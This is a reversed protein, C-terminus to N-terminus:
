QAVEILAEVLADLAEQDGVIGGGGEDEPSLPIISVLNGEPDLIFFDRYNVKWQEWANVTLTDQLLPLTYGRGTLSEATAELGTQNIAFLTIGLEPHTQDLQVQIDDLM